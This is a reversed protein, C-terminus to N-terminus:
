KLEVSAGALYRRRQRLVFRSSRESPSTLRRVL